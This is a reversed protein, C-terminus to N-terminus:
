YWCIPLSNYNLTRFKRYFNDCYEWNRVYQGMNYDVKSLKWVYQGMNYDVKSLKWVYQGMNYDVKSWKQVYQGMTYDVKSLSLHTKNSV